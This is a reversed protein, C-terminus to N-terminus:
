GRSTYCLRALGRTTTLFDDQSIRLVPNLGPSARDAIMRTTGDYQLYPSGPFTGANNFGRIGIADGAVSIAVMSHTPRGANPIILVDGPKCEAANLSKARSCFIKGYEDNQLSAILNNTGKCHPCAVRTFEQVVDQANQDTKGLAILAWHMVAMHCNYPHFNPAATNLVPANMAANQLSM